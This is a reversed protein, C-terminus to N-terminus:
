LKRNQIFHKTWLELDFAFFRKHSLQTYPEPFSKLFVIRYFTPHKTNLCKITHIALHSDVKKLFVRNIIKKFIKNLEFNLIDLPFILHLLLNSIFFISIYNMQVITKLNLIRVCTFTFILM